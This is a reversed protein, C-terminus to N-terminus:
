RTAKTLCFSKLMAAKTQWEFDWQSPNQEIAELGAEQATTSLKEFWLNADWKEFNTSFFLTGGLNLRDACAKLLVGFDKDVRFVKKSKKSRSFSPPDCIITDFRLDKKKAWALYELSDMCRWEYHQLDPDLENERFNEKGWDLYSRFLDVSVVKAAGGRAAQVSFGCTFAFLNLVSKSKSSEYIRQRNERQDLFLGVNQGRDM